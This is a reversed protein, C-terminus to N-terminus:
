IINVQKLLEHSSGDKAQLNKNLNDLESQLKTVEDEKETLQSLISNIRKKLEAEQAAFDKKMKEKEEMLMRNAEEQSVSNMKRAAELEKEYFLQAKALKAEYEESMVNRSEELDKLKKNLIEIEGAYKDEVKRVENLWENSEDRSLNRVNAVEKEHDRKLERLKREHESEVNEKWAEFQKLKEEFDKKARLVEHSLELMKQAHESKLKTEREDATNKFHEFQSVHREKIAQNERITAELHQIRQSHGSDTDLKNKFAAIKDKTEKLIKQIEEEHQEKIQQVM